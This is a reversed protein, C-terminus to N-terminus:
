RAGNELNQARDEKKELASEKELNTIIHAVRRIDGLEPGRRKKEAHCGDRKALGNKRQQV